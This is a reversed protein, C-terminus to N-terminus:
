EIPAKWSSFVLLWFFLCGLDWYFCHNVGLRTQKCRVKYASLLLFLSLHNLLYYARLNGIGDDFTGNPLAEEKDNDIFSMFTFYVSM